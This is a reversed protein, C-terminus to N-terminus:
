EDTEGFVEATFRELVCDPRKWSGVALGAKLCLHSLFSERDWGQEVPVQPLLLGARGGARMILGDRGVVIEAIDKVREFGGLVSIEVRARGLEPLDMPYFRPDRVAANVASESVSRVLPRSADLSGICGRLEGDITLTVFVGAPEELASAQKGLEFHTGSLHCRISERAIRLLVERDSLSLPARADSHAHLDVM